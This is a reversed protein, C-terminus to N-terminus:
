GATDSAPKPMWTVIREEDPEYILLKVNLRERILQGYPQQFVTEQVTNPVALYMIRDPEVEELFTRYLIFQGLSLELEHLPSPGLFVKIEVAIKINDKQAALPREAGLDVFVDQGGYNVKLPDDTITWGDAILAKVVLDHHLDRRPM